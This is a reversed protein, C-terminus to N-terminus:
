NSVITIFVYEYDEYGWDNLSRSESFVEIHTIKSGIYAVLDEPAIRMALEQDIDEGKTGQAM